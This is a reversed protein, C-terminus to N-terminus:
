SCSTSRSPLVCCRRGCCRDGSSISPGGRRSRPWGGLRRERAGEAFAGLDSSRCRRRELRAWGGSQAADGDLSFVACCRTGNRSRTWLGGSRKSTWRAGLASPGLFTTFPWGRISGTWFGCPAAARVFAAGSGCRPVRHPEEACSLSRPKPRHSAKPRDRRCGFGTRRHDPNSCSACPSRSGFHTAFEPFSKRRWCRTGASNSSTTMSAWGTVWLVKTWIKELAAEMPTRPGEYM